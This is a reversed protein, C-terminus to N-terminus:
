MGGLNINNVKLWLLEFIMQCYHIHLKREEVVGERVFNINYQSSESRSYTQAEKDEM